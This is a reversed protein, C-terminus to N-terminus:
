RTRKMFAIERVDMTYVEVGSLAITIKIMNINMKAGHMLGQAWIITSWVVKDYDKGIIVKDDDKLRKQQHKM